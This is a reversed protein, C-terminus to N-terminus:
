WRHRDRQRQLHRKEVVSVGPLSMGDDADTVKGTIATSQAFIGFPILWGLLLLFRM